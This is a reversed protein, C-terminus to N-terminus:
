KGGLFASGLSGAIANGGTGKVYEVIVPVFKQIMNPSMGSQQFASALGMMNGVRGGGLSALGGLGSPQQMAPAAKLLSAMGPVANSLQSFANPQMQTKALQFLAGAGSQAQTQSIGLRYM